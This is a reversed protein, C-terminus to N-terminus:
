SSTSFAAATRRSTRRTTRTARSCSCSSLPLAQYRVTLRVRVGAHRDDAAWRPRRWAAPWPTTATAFTIPSYRRTRKALVQVDACPWSRASRRPNCPRRCWSACTRSSSARRRRSRAFTKTRSLSRGLGDLRELEFWVGINRIDRAFNHGDHRSRCCWGGDLPGSPDTLCEFSWGTAVDICLM